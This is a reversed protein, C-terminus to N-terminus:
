DYCMAAIYLRPFSSTVKHRGIVITIILTMDQNSEEFPAGDEVWSVVGGFSTIVSLLSEGPGIALAKLRPDLIHRTSSIEFEIVKLKFNADVEAQYYIGKVSIFAKRLKYQMSIDLVFKLESIFM